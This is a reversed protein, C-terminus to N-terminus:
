TRVDLNAVLVSILLAAFATVLIAVNTPKKNPNQQLQASV